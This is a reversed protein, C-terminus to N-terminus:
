FYISLRSEPNNLASRKKKKEKLKKGVDSVSCSTRRQMDEVLPHASARATDSLGYPDVPTCLSSSPNNPAAFAPTSLESVTIINPLNTSIDVEPVLSNNPVGPSAIHYTAQLPVPSALISIAPSPVRSQVPSPM